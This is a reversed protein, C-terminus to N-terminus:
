AKAIEPGAITDPALTSVLRMRQGLQEVVRQADPGCTTATASDEAIRSQKDGCAVIALLAGILLTYRTAIM